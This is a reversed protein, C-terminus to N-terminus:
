WYRSGSARGTRPRRRINVRLDARVDRNFVKSLEEKGMERFSEAKEADGNKAALEVGAAIMWGMAEAIYQIPMPQQYWRVTGVDVFDGQNLTFRIRLDQVMLSGLLWISDNRWEWYRLSTSKARTPLGDLFKEMPPDCFQANIGNWREWMKLPHLFNSPLAPTTNLNAGDFFGAQSLQCFVAPDSTAVTPLATIIVESTTAQYNREGLWSQCFRWAKNTLQQMFSDTFDLIKGSVFELTDVRTGLNVRANNLAYGVTDYTTTAIPPLIPM